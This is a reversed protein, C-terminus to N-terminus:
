KNKINKLVESCWELEAKAMHLGHDITILWYPPDEENKHEKQLHKKISNLFELKEETSQKRKHILKEYQECSLNKGFFLKLLLEDRVQHREAPKPLWDQLVKLGKETLSYIKSKRKGNYSDDEATILKEKLSKALNPYIQGASESWFNAITKKIMSQMEYGSMPRIALM